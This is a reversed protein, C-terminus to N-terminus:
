RRMSKRKFDDVRQRYHMVTQRSVDSRQEDKLEADADAALAQATELMADFAEAGDRASSLRLLFVVGRTAFAEVDSLDFTGPEVGNAVTFQERGDADVKHFVQGDYELGAESFRQLLVAGPLVCEPKAVVWLMLVEDVLGSSESAADEADVDVTADSHRAEDFSAEGASPEPVPAHAAGGNRYTPAARAQLRRATRPVTPETRKGAIEVRRGRRVPKEAVAQEPLEELERQRRVLAASSALAPDAPVEAHGPTPAVRQMPVDSGTGEPLRAAEPLLASDVDLPMQEAGQDPGGAGELVPLSPRGRRAMWFGHLLVLGILLGGGLLIYTRIDLEM